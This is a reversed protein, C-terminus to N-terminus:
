GGESWSATYCRWEGGERKWGSEIRLTQGREPLFRGGLVLASVKVTAHDADHLHVDLPGLTVSVRDEGLLQSVLLGRLVQKDVQGDNGTFDDTVRRLFDNPKHAEVAKQMDGIERKLQATPDKDGCGALGLALLMAGAHLVLRLGFRPKKDGM